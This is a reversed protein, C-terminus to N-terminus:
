LQFLEGVKTTSVLGSAKVKLLSYLSCDAYHLPKLHAWSWRWDSTGAIGSRMLDQHILDRDFEDAYQSLHSAFLNFADFAVEPCLNDFQSPNGERGSISTAQEAVLPWLDSKEWKHILQEDDALPVKTMIGAEGLLSISQYFRPCRGSAAYPCRILLSRRESESTYWALDPNIYAM